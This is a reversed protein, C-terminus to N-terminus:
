THRLTSKMFVKMISNLMAITLRQPLNGTQWLYALIPNKLLHWSIGQIIVLANWTFLISAPYYLFEKIRRVLVQLVRLVFFNNFGVCFWWQNCKGTHNEERNYFNKRLEFSAIILFSIEEWTYFLTYQLYRLNHELCLKM